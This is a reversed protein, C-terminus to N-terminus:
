SSAAIQARYADRETAAVRERLDVAGVDLLRRAAYRASFLTLSTVALMVCSLLLVISGPAPQGALIEWLFPALLTPLYTPYFSPRLVIRGGEARLDIRVLPRTRSRLTFGERVLLCAREPVFQVVKSGRRVVAPGGLRALEPASAVADRYGTAERMPPTLAAAALPLLAVSSPGGLRVRALGALWSPRAHLLITEVLFMLVFAVLPM